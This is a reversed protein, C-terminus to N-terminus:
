DQPLEPLYDQYAAEADFPFWVIIGGDEEETYIGEIPDSGGISASLSEPRGLDEWEQACLTWYVGDAEFDFPAVESTDAETGDPLYVRVVAGWDWPPTSMPTPSPDSLGYKENLYDITTQSITEEPAAAPQAACGGLLLVTPLLLLLLRKM